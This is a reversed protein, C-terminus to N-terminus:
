LRQSDSFLFSVQRVRSRKPGARSRNRRQVAHVDIWLGAGVLLGCACAAVIWWRNAFVGM